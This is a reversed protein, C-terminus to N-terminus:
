RGKEDVVARRSRHTQLRGDLGFTPRSPFARGWLRSKTGCCASSPWDRRHPRQCPHTRRGTTVNKGPHLTRPLRQLSPFPGVARKTRVEIRRGDSSSTEGRTKKERRSVGTGDPLEWSSEEDRQLAHRATVIIGPAGSHSGPHAASETTSRLPTNRRGQCYNRCATRFTAWESSM